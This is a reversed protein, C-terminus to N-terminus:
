TGASLVPRRAAVFLVGTPYVLSGGRAQVQRCTEIFRNKLEAVVQPTANQLRSRAMSSFTAQLEWFEEATEIVARNGLWGVHDVRFGARRV